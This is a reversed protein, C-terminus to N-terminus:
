ASPCINMETQSHGACARDLGRRVIGHTSDPIIATGASVPSTSSESWCGRMILRRCALNDAALPHQFTQTHICPHIDTLFRAGGQEHFACRNVTCGGGGVSGFLDLIQLGGVAEQVIADPCGLGKEVIAVGDREAASLARVEVLRGLGRCRLADIDVRTMTGTDRVELCLHVCSCPCLCLRYLVRLHAFPVHLSFLSFRTRPARLCRPRCPGFSGADGGFISKSAPPSSSAFTRCCCKFPLREHRSAAFPPHPLLRRRLISVPTPPAHGRLAAARFACACM